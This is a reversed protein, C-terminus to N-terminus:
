RPSITTPSAADHIAGTCHRPDAIRAFSTQAYGLEAITEITAAVIQARHAAAAVSPTSGKSVPMLLEYTSQTILLRSGLRVPPM